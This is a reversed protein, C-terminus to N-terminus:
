QLHFYEVQHFVKWWKFFEDHSCQHCRFQVRAVIANERTVNSWPYIQLCFITTFREQNGNVELRVNQTELEFDGWVLWCHTSSILLFCTREFNCAQNISTAILIASTMLDNMRLTFHITRINQLLWFHLKDSKSELKADNYSPPSPPFSTESGRDVVRIRNM